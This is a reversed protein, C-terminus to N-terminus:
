VCAILTHSVFNPTMKVLLPLTTPKLSKDFNRVIAMSLSIIELTFGAWEIHNAIFRMVFKILQTKANYALMQQQLDSKGLVCRLAAKYFSRKRKIADVLYIFWFCFVVTFLRIWYHSYDNAISGM